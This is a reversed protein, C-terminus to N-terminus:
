GRQLTIFTYDFKNKDDALHKERHIEKWSLMEYDPFFTDGETDLDILTLYLRDAQHLMQEYLTAGGIIIIEDVDGPPTKEAHYKEAHLLAQEISSAVIIGEAQFTKSSTIVINKRHPLAFGISQFTKRGMIIPKNLTMKKFHALDAPLHWPMQNNKGIVRNQAMAAIMSIIPTKSGRAM